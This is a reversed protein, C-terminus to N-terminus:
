EGGKRKSSRMSLSRRSKHCSPTATVACSSWEPRYGMLWRSFNANLQYGGLKGTEASSSEATAGLGAVQQSLPVGTDTPRPPKTGRESDQATPSVWGALYCQEHLNVPEGGTMVKRTTEGTSLKRLREDTPIMANACTPTGWGALGAVHPLHMQRENQLNNDANSPSHKTDQVKPTPWVLALPNAWGTCDSASIRRASATHEWYVIGLPTAKERWTQTYEISGGTSLLDQCRSVLSQTLAVSESSATSTQGCTGSMKMAKKNGRRQIPSALALAPGCAESPQGDQLDCPKQGGPLEQSFTDSDMGPLTLQRWTRSAESM